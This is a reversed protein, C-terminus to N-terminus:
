EPGKIMPLQLWGGLSFACMFDAITPGDTGAIWGTSSSKLMAQFNGLLRPMVTDHLDKEVLKTGEGGPGGLATNYGFREQYKCPLTAAEVDHIADMIADVKAALVPDEPYLGSAAGALKAIYRGIAHTQILTVADSGEGVILAPVQRSM